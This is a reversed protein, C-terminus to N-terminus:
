RRVAPSRMQTSPAEGAANSVPRRWHDGPFLLIAGELIARDFSLAFNLYDVDTVGTATGTPTPTVTSSPTPTPTSSSGSCAAGGACCATVSGATRIFRRREERRREGAELLQIVTDSDSM